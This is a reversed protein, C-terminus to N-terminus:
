KKQGLGMGSLFIFGSSLLLVTSPEPVPSPEPEGTTITLSNDIDYGILDGDMLEYYIGSFLGDYLGTIRLTDSGLAITSFSFTALLTENDAIAPFACAAVNNGGLSDDEGFASGLTYGTYTFIGGKDFAIDFGFSLLNLGTEDGDAWVEVNFNDGTMVPSNRLSLNTSPIAFAPLVGMFILIVSLLFINVKNLKM